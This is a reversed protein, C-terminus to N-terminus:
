AVTLRSLVIGLKPPGGAGRWWGSFCFPPFESPHKESSKANQAKHDNGCLEASVGLEQKRQDPAAAGTEQDTKAYTKPRRV